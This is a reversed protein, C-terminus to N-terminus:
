GGQADDQGGALYNAGAWVAGSVYGGINYIKTTTKKMVNATKGYYTNKQDIEDLMNTGDLLVASLTQNLVDSNIVATTDSKRTEFEHDQATLFSRLDESGCIVKHQVCYDLFRQIGSRRESIAESDDAYYGQFNIKAPIPPIICSLHEVQLAQILWELDSYRRHVQIFPFEPNDKLKTLIKYLRHSGTVAGENNWMPGSVEVSIYPNHPYKIMDFDEQM